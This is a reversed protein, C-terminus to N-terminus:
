GDNVEENGAIFEPDGENMEKPEKEKVGQYHELIYEGLEKSVQATGNDSIELPEEM